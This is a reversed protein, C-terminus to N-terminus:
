FSVNEIVKKKTPDESARTGAFSIMPSSAPETKTLYTVEDIRAIM